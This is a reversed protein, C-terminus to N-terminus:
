GGFVKAYFSAAPFGAAIFLALIILFSLGFLVRALAVNRTGVHRIWKKGLPGALFSTPSLSCALSAGLWFGLMLGAALKVILYLSDTFSTFPTTYRDIGMIERGFFAWPLAVILGAVGGVVGAIAIRKQCRRHWVASEGLAALADPDVAVLHRFGQYVQRIPGAFFVDGAPANSEKNGEASPKEAPNARTTKRVRRVGEREREARVAVASPDTPDCGCMSCVGDASTPKRCALHVPCGCDRCHEASVISSIRERCHTCNTGVLQAM